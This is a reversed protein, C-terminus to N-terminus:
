HTVHMSFFIGSVPRYGIRVHDSSHVGESSTCSNSESVASTVSTRGCASTPIYNKLRRSPVLKTVGPFTTKEGRPQVASSNPATLPTSNCLPQSPSSYFRTTIATGPSSPTEFVNRIRLRAQDPTGAAAEIGHSLEEKIATDGLQDESGNHLQSRNVHSPMSQQTGSKNAPPISKSFTTHARRIPIGYPPKQSALLARKPKPPPAGASRAVLMSNGSMSSGSGKMSHHQIHGAKHEKQLATRAEPLGHSPSRATSKHFQSQQLRARHLNTPRRAPIAIKKNTLDDADLPRFSGGKLTNPFPSHTRPDYVPISSQQGARFQSDSKRKKHFPVVVAPHPPFMVPLQLDPKSRVNPKASSGICDYRTQVPKLRKVKWRPLYYGWLLGGILIAAGIVGFIVSYQDNSSGNRPILRHSQLPPMIYIIEILRLSHSTFRATVDSALALM